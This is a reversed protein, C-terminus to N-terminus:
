RSAVTGTVWENVQHSSFVSPVMIDCCCRHRWLLTIRIAEEAIHNLQSTEMVTGKRM